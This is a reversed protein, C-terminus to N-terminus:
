QPTAMGDAIKPGIKGGTVSPAAESIQPQPYASGEGCAPLSPVSHVSVSTRRADFGEARLRRVAQASLTCFHGRCYAVITRDRPLDALHEELANLPVSLAGPIHGAAFEHAPRVDVLVAAGESLRALLTDRDLAELGEPDEFFERTLKDLGAMYQTAIAQLQVLVAGVEPGSLSYCVHVGDREGRVLQARKLTQLHHSTNAMSQGIEGALVEVTRPAQALLELIELRAPSALAKGVEALHTYAARKFQQCASASM